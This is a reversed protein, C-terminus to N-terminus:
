PRRRVVQPGSRAGDPAAKSKAYGRHIAPSRHKLDSRRQKLREAGAEAWAYAMGDLITPSQGIREIIGGPGDKPLVMIKDRQVLKWRASGLEAVIRRGPPLAIDDGDDPDLAERLAWIIDSRYNAFGFRAQPVKVQQGNRDLRAKPKTLRHSAAAMQLSVALVGNNSLFEVVGNGWGGTCDVNVQCDDKMHTFVLAAGVSPKKYDVGKALIPEEFWTGYLPLLGYEDKGGGSPDVGMATMRSARAREKRVEWRQQAALIWDTPIVQWEDDAFSARFKGKALDQLEKPLSALMSAYGTDALDPNDALSSPIFTRSRPKLELGNHDVGRWDEGVEVDEGDINTFWRLEGPRAPNPHYDDLWPAWYEVVWLGEPTIPPNGASVTRVRQGPRTSRNWANVTRWGAGSFQTVEDWGKYDRAKGQYREWASADGLAGFEITWDGKGAPARWVHEQGNYGKRTGIMEALRDVLASRDNHHLRFIQAQHHENIAIGLVLDSKGGGPQGGFFLDDAPSFYADTQPGPNPCWIMDATAALADARVQEQLDPPMENFRQLLEDLM